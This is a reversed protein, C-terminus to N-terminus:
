RCKQHEPDRVSESGPESGSGARIYGPVEASVAAEQQHPLPLGEAAQLQLQFHFKAAAPHSPAQFDESIAM